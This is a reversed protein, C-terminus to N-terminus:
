SGNFREPFELPLILKLGHHNFRHFCTKRIATENLDAAGENSPEDPLPTDPIGYTKQAMGILNPRHHNFTISPSAGQSYWSGVEIM